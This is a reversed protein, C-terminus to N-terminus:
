NFAITGENDARPRTSTITERVTSSGSIFLGAGNITAIPGCRM